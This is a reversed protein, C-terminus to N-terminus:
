RSTVKRDSFHWRFVMRLDSGGPKQREVNQHFHLRSAIGRVQQQGVGRREVRAIGTQGRLDDEAHQAVTGLEIEQDLMMGAPRALEIEGHADGQAHAEVLDAIQLANRRVGGDLVADLQHLARM